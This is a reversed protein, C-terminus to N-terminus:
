ANVTLCHSWSFRLRRSAAFARRLLMGALFVYGQLEFVNGVREKDRGTNDVRRAQALGKGSVIRRLDRLYARDLRAMLAINTRSRKPIGAAM